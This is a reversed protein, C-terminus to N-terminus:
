IFRPIMILASIARVIEGASIINDYGVQYLATIVKKCPTVVRLDGDLGIGTAITNIIRILPCKLNGCVFDFKQAWLNGKYPAALPSCFIARRNKIPFLAPERITKLFIVKPPLIFYRLIRNVIANRITAQVCTGM